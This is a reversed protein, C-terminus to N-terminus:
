LRLSGQPCDFDIVPQCRANTDKSQCRAGTLTSHSPQQDRWREHFQLTTELTTACSAGVHADQSDSAEHRFVKLRKSAFEEETVAPPPRQEYPADLCSVNQNANQMAATMEGVALPEVQRAHPERTSLCELEDVMDAVKRLFVQHSMHPGRLSHLLSNGGLVRERSPGSKDGLGPSSTQSPSELGESNSAPNPTSNQAPSTPSGKEGIDELEIEGASSFKVALNRSNRFKVQNFSHQRKGHRLQEHNIDARTGLKPTVHMAPELLTILSQNM